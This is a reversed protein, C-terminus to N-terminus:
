ARAAGAGDEHELGEHGKARSAAQPAAPGIGDPRARRAPGSGRGAVLVRSLSASPEHFPGEMVLSRITQVVVWSVLTARRSSPTTDSSNMSRSACRPTAPLM